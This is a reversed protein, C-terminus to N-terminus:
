RLALAAAEGTCGAQARAGAARATAAEAKALALQAQFTADAHLRGVVAAGVTRGAEVDSQWHAGCVVRSQTFAFGRALLADAREPAIEALVLAWAWGASAHGSPYSGSKRLSPEDDPTCTGEKLVMFPRPRKYHEKAKATTAGADALTRRLLMNLHPTAEQSISFGLACAFVGAAEPFTLVADKAALAGRPTDRLRRAARHAEEDAAFAASGPVPPPPLLALSDPLHNPSLYGALYGKSLPVESPLTPPAAQLAVVVLGVLLAMRNWFHPGKTM